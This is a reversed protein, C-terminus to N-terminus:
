GRSSSLSSRSLRPKRTTMLTPMPKPLQMELRLTALRKPRVGNSSRYWDGANSHEFNTPIFTTRPVPRRWAKRMAATEKGLLDHFVHPDKFFYTVQSSRYLMARAEQPARISVFLLAWTMEHGFPRKQRGSSGGAPRFTQILIFNSSCKKKRRIRLNV